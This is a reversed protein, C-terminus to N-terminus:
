RRGSRAPLNDPRTVLRAPRDVTDVAVV